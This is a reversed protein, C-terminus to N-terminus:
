PEWSLGLRMASQHPLRQVGAIIQFRRDALPAVRLAGGYFGRTRDEVQADRGTSHRLGATLEASWRAGHIPVRAALGGDLTTGAVAAGFGLAIRASLDVTGRVLVTRAAQVFYLATPGGLELVGGVTARRAARERRLAELQALRQSVYSGRAGASLVMAQIEDRGVATREDLTQVERRLDARSRQAEELQAVLSDATEVLPATASQLSDIRAREERIREQLYDDHEAHLGWVSDAQTQFRARAAQLEAESDVLLVQGQERLQVLSTRSAAVQAQGDSRVHRAAAVGVIAAVIVLDILLAKPSPMLRPHKRM